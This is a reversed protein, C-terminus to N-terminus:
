PDEQLEKCRSKVMIVPWNQVCGTYIESKVHGCQIQLLECLPEWVASVFCLPSIEHIEIIFGPEVSYQNDKYVSSFTSIVTCKVKRVALLRAVDEPNRNGCLLSSVCLRLNTM